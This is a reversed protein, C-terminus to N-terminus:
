KLKNEVGGGGADQKVTKDYEERLSERGLM